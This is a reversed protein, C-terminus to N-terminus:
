LYELLLVITLSHLLQDLGITSYFWHDEWYKWTEKLKKIHAQKHEHDGISGKPFFNQGKYTRQLVGWSYVNWIMGDIIGHIIANFLSFYFAKEPGIFFSLAVMFVTFQILIHYIWWKFEKSKKQGMERSQLLFDAIFHLILCWVVM